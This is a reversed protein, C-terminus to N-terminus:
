RSAQMDKRCALSSRGMRSPAFRSCMLGVRHRIAAPRGQRERFLKPTPSPMSTQSPSATPTLTPPDPALTRSPSFTDTASPAPTATGTATANWTPSPTPTSPITQMPTRDPTESTPTVTLPPTHTQVASATASHSPPLVATPSATLTATTSAVQTFTGTPSKTSTGTPSQSAFPTTTPSGTVTPSLTATQTPTDSPTCTPSRSSTATPSVRTPTPSPSATPTTLVVTVTDYEAIGTDNYGFLIFTFTGSAFAQFLADSRLPSSLTALSGATQQWFYSVGPQPASGLMLIAGLAGSQDRGADVAPPPMLNSVSVVKENSFPSELGETNFATVALYYTHTPDLGVVIHHVVGAFTLSGISDVPYRHIYTRSSPGVYVFYGAVDPEPPATWRLMLDYAYCVDSFFQALLVVVPLWYGVLPSYQSSQTVSDEPVGRM